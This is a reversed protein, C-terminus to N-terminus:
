TDCVILKEIDTGSVDLCEAIRLTIVEYTLSVKFYMRCYGGDDFVTKEIMASLTLNELDPEERCMENRIPSCVYM